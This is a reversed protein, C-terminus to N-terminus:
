PHKARNVVNRMADLMIDRNVALETRLEVSTYSITCGNQMMAEVAISWDAHLETSAYM